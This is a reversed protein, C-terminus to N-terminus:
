LLLTDTNCFPFRNSNKEVLLLLTLPYVLPRTLPRTLSCTLPHALPRTLVLHPLLHLMHNPQFTVNNYTFKHIIFLPNHAHRHTHWHTHWYTHWYTHWQSYCHAHCHRYPLRLCQQSPICTSTPTSSLSPQDIWRISVWGWGCGQFAGLNFNQGCSFWRTNM